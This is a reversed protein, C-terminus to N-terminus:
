RAATEAALVLDVCRSVADDHSGADRVQYPGRGDRFGADYSGGGRFLVSVHRALLARVLADCSAIADATLPITFAAWPADGASDGIVFGGDVDVALEDQPGDDEGLHFDEGRAHAEAIAQLVLPAALRVAAVVESDSLLCTHQADMLAQVCACWSSVLPHPTWFRRERAM